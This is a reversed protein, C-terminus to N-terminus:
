AFIDPISHLVFFCVCSRTWPGSTAYTEKNEMADWIDERSRSNSHVAILGGSMFYASQRESDTVINLDIISTIERDGGFRLYTPELEGKPRRTDALFESIPDAWGRAETNRNRFLEKYGTGPRANHNDSSGMFGFKFRKPNEPDTFDRLALIYQASGLPRYNFAPLFCDMCQGANIFDDGRTENVAGFAASGMNAAYSKTKKSLDNCTEEDLGADECRQTM